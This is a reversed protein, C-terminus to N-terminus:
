QLINRARRQLYLDTCLPASPRDRAWLGRTVCEAERQTNAGAASQPQVTSISGFKWMVPEPRGTLVTPRQTGNGHGPGAGLVWGVSGRTCCLPGLQLLRLCGSNGPCSPAREMAENKSSCGQLGGGTVAGGATGVSGLLPCPHGSGGVEMSERGPDPLARSLASSAWGVWPIVGCHAASLVVLVPCPGAWGEGGAGVADASSHKWCLARIEGESPVSIMTPCDAPQCARRAHGQPPNLVFSRLAGGAGPARPHQRHGWAGAAGAGSGPETDWCCNPPQATPCGETLTVEWSSQQLNSWRFFLLWLLHSPKPKCFYDARIPFPPSHTSFSGMCPMSSRPSARRQTSPDARHGGCVGLHPLM